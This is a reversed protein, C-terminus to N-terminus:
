LSLALEFCRLIRKANRLYDEGPQLFLMTDDVFQLHSIHVDNDGFIVGIMLDLEFSKEFLRHLGEIAINFLFPSLLDGQRLGKELGFQEM